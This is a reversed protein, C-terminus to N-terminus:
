RFSWVIGCGTGDANFRILTLNRELSRVVERLRQPDSGGPLPDDIRSPWALEQFADLVRCISRAVNASRLKKVVTGGVSLELLDRNWVPRLKGAQHGGIALLLREYDAPHMLGLGHAIDVMAREYTVFRAHMYMAMTGQDQWAAQLDGGLRTREDDSFIQRWVRDAVVAPILRLRWANLEKAVENSIPLGDSTTFSPAPSEESIRRRNNGSGTPRRKGKPRASRKAMSTVRNANM